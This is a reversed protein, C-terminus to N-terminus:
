SATWDVVIEPPPADSPASMDIGTIEHIRGRSWTNYDDTATAFDAFVKEVDDAEFWVLVLLGDPTTVVSWTQRTIGLAVQAATFETSRSGNVDAAYARMEDEKGPLVPFVGNFVGM